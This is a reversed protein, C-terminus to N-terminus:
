RLVGGETELAALGGCRDTEGGDDGEDEDEESVSSGGGM